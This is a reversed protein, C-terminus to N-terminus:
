PQHRGDRVSQLTPLATGAASLTVACRVAARGSGVPPLGPGLRAPWGVPHIPILAQGDDHHECIHHRSDCQDNALDIRDQLTTGSGRLTSWKKSIRLHSNAAEYLAHRM